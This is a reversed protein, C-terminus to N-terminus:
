GRAAEATEREGDIQIVGLGFRGPINVWELGTEECYEDLAQRVPPIGKPPEYGPWRLLDTDHFLATGGPALKPMYAHLERIVHEYEHNSDVFLIDVQEPTRAITDAALDDGHVFTWGPVDKWRRMGDPFQLVDDIDVSWVHGHSEAAGALFALTSNGRRAGLELIRPQEYGSALAHFLPLYEQIDSWRKARDEYADQVTSIIRRMDGDYRRALAM